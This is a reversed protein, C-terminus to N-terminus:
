NTWEENIELNKYRRKNERFYELDSALIKKDLPLSALVGSATVCTYPMLIVDSVAILSYFEDDTLKRPVLFLNTINELFEINLGGEVPGAVVILGNKNIRKSFNELRQIGKNERIAGIFLYLEKNLLRLNNSLDTQRFDERALSPHEMYISEIGNELLSDSLNKSFCVYSATQRQLLLRELLNIKRRSWTEHIYVKSLNGKPCFILVLYDFINGWFFYHIEKKKSVAIVKILGRIYDSTSTLVSFLCGEYDYGSILKPLEDFDDYLKTWLLETSKRKGIYDVLVM